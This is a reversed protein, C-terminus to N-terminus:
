ITEGTFSESVSQRQHNEIAWITNPQTSTRQQKGNHAADAPM